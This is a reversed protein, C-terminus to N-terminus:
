AERVKAGALAAEGAGRMIDSAILVAEASGRAIAQPRVACVM